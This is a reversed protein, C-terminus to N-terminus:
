GDVIAQLAALYAQIAALQQQLTARRRASIPDQLDHLLREKERTLRVIEKDIEFTPHAAAM